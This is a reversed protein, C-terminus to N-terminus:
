ERVGLEAYLRPKRVTDVQRTSASSLEIIVQPMVGEEWVRYSGRERLPRPRVGFAVLVDPSFNKAPVGQRYYVFLNGGVFVDPRALSFLRLAQILYLAQMYHQASESVKGDEEPYYVETPPRHTIAM